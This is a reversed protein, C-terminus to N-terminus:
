KKKEVIEITITRKEGKENEIEMKATGAKKAVWQWTTTRKETKPNKYIHTEEKDFLNAGEDVSVMFADADSTRIWAYYANQGVKMQVKEGAKTLNLAGKKPKFPEDSFNFQAFTGLSVLYFFVILFHVKKM